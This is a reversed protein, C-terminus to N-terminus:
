TNSPSRDRDDDQLSKPFLRQRETVNSFPPDAADFSKARRDAIQAMSRPLAGTVGIHVFKESLVDRYSQTTIGDPFQLLTQPPRKHSPSEIHGTGFRGLDTQPDVVKRLYPPASVTM